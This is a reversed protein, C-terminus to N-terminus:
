SPNPQPTANAGGRDLEDAFARLADALEKKTPLQDVKKDLETIRRSLDELDTSGTSGGPPESASPAPDVGGDVGTSDGGDVGVTGGTDTLGGTSGSGAVTGGDTTGGDTTGDSTGGTSTGGGSTGGTDTDPPVTDTVGHERRPGDDSPAALAVGVGLAALVAAGAVAISLRRIRLAHHTTSSDRPTQPEQPEQAKQTDDM